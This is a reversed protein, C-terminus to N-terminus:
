FNDEYVNVGKEVDESMIVPTRLPNLLNIFDEEVYKEVHILPTGLLLALHSTDYRIDGIVFKAIKICEIMSGLSTSNVDSFYTIRTFLDVADIINEREIVKKTALNDVIGINEGLAREAVEKNKERPLFDYNMKERPFQWRVRFRWGRIDPYDHSVIRFRKRFKDKFYKVVTYYNEEKYDTLKFAKRGKSHSDNKLRLPVLIDAYQGYLDFRSPRTLVILRSNPNNKKLHIAYPAFRFFEWCLEGVFPGFLFAKPRM